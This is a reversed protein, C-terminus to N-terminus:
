NLFKMNRIKFLKTIFLTKVVQEFSLVNAKFKTSNAKVKSKESRKKWWGSSSNNAEKENEKFNLKKLITKKKNSKLYIKNINKM